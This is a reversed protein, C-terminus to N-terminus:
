DPFVEDTWVDRGEKSSHKRNLSVITNTGGSCFDCGEGACKRCPLSAYTLEFTTATGDSHGIVLSAYPFFKQPERPSADRTVAKGSRTGRISVYAQM